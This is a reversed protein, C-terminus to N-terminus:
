PHLEVARIHAENGGTSTRRASTDKCIILLALAEEVLRNMNREGRHGAALIKKALIERTAAAHKEAALPSGSTQVTQWAKDFAAGLLSTTEPDFARSSLLKAMPMAAEKRHLSLEGRARPLPAMDVRVADCDVCVYSLVRLQGILPHSETGFLRTKAGCKRCTPGDARGMPSIIINLMTSSNVLIPRYDFLVKSIVVISVTYETKEKGCRGITRV